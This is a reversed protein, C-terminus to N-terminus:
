QAEEETSKEALSQAALDVLTSQYNALLMQCDELRLDAGMLAVRANTVMELAQAPNGGDLLSKVIEYLEDKEDNLNDAVEKVLSSVRSPVEDLDVTFSIKVRTPIEM